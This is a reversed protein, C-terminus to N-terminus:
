DLNIVLKVREEEEGGLSLPQLFFAASSIGASILHVKSCSALYCLSEIVSCWGSISRETLCRSFLHMYISPKLVFCYQGTKMPFGKYKQKQHFGCTKKTFSRMIICVFGKFVRLSKFLNLVFLAVSLSFLLLSRM